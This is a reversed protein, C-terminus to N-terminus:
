SLRENKRTRDRTREYAAAHCIKKNYYTNTTTPKKKLHIQGICFLDAPQLWNQWFKTRKKSDSRALAGHTYREKEIYCVFDYVRYIIFSFDSRINYVLLIICLSQSFGRIGYWQISYIQLDINSM